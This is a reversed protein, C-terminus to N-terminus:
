ISVYTELKLVSKIDDCMSVARRSMYGAVIRCARSGAFTNISMLQVRLETKIPNLPLYELLRHMSNSLWPLSASSGTVLFPSCMFTRAMKAITM